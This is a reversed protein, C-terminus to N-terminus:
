CLPAPWAHAWPWRVCCIVSKVCDAVLLVLASLSLSRSPSLFYFLVLSFTSPRQVSFHKYGTKFVYLFFCHQCTCCASICSCHLLLSVSFITASSYIYSTNTHWPRPYFFFLHLSCLQFNSAVDESTSFTCRRSIHPSLGRCVATIVGSISSFQFGHSSVFLLFLCFSLFFCPPLLFVSSSSFM